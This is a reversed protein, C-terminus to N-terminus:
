ILYFQTGNYLITVSEYQVTMTYTAAGDINVGGGSITVTHAGSTIDKIDIVTGSAYDSPSLTITFTGNALYYGSQTLTTNATLTTTGTGQQRVNNIYVM